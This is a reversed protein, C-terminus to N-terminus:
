IRILQKGSLENIKKALRKCNALHEDYSKWAMDADESRAMGYAMCVRGMMRKQEMEINYESILKGILENM